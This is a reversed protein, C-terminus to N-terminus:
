YPSQSESFPHKCRNCGFFGPLCFDYELSNEAGKRNDECDEIGKAYLVYALFVSDTVRQEEPPARSTNEPSTGVAGTVVQFAPNSYKHHFHISGIVSADM